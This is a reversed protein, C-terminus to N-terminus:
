SSLAGEYSAQMITPKHSVKQNIIYLLFQFVVLTQCAQSGVGLVTPNSPEKNQKKLCPSACHSWLHAKAVASLPRSPSAICSVCIRPSLLSIRASVMVGNCLLCLCTAGGRQSTAAALTVFSSSFRACTLQVQLSPKLFISEIVFFFFSSAKIDNQSTADSSSFLFFSVKWWASTVPFRHLRGGRAAPRQVIGLTSCKRYVDRRAEVPDLTFLCSLWRKNQAVLWSHSSWPAVKVDNKRLCFCM